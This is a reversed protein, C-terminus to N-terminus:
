VLVCGLGHTGTCTVRYLLTGLTRSPSSLKGLHLRSTRIGICLYSYHHHFVIRGFSRAPRARLASPLRQGTGAPPRFALPFCAPMGQVEIGRHLSRLPQQFLAPTPKDLNLTTASFKTPLRPSKASLSSSGNKLHRLPQRQM